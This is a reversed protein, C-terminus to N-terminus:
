TSRQFLELRSVIDAGLSSMIHLRGDTDGANVAFRTAACWCRDRAADHILSTFHHSVFNCNELLCICMESLNIISM